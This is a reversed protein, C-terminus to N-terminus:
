RGTRRAPATVAWPKGAVARDEIQVGAARRLARLTIARDMDRHYLGVFQGEGKALQLATTRTGGFRCDVHGQEDAKFVAIPSAVTAEAIREMAISVTCRSM